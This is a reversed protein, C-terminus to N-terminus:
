GLVINGTASTCEHGRGATLKEHADLVFVDMGAHEHKWFQRKGETSM